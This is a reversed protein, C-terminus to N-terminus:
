PRAAEGQPQPDPQSLRRELDAEAKRQTEESVNLIWLMVVPVVNQSTLAKKAEDLTFDPVEQAVAAQLIAAARDRFESQWYARAALPLKDLEGAKDFREMNDFSLAPVFIEEVKVVEGKENTRYRKIKPQQM